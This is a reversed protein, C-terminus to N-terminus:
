RKLKKIIPKHRTMLKVNDSTFMGVVTVVQARNNNNKCKSRVLVKDGIHIDVNKTVKWVYEKDNNKFKGIIYTIPMNNKDKKYEHVTVYPVEKLGYEVAVLYRTYNNTLINGNTVIPKDIKNNNKVYERVYNLKNENPVSNKFSEPIIIDSLKIKNM